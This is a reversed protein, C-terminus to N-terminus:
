RPTALWRLTGQGARPAGKFSVCAVANKKLEVALSGDGLLCATLLRGLSPQHGVVAATRCRERGLARLISAIEAGPALEALETAPPWGAVDRLIEATQKARVLPSTLLRDPPPFLHHLASASHHCPATPIRRGSTSTGSSRSRM